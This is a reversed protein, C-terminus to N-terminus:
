ADSTSGAGANGGIYVNRSGSVNDVGADWGVACCIDTDYTGNVYTLSSLASNGIAISQKGTTSSRYAEEGIIVNNYGTTLSQGARKGIVINGNTTINAMSGTSSIIINNSITSASIPLYVNPVIMISQESANNITFNDVKNSFSSTGDLSGTYSDFVATSGSVLGRLQTYTVLVNGM